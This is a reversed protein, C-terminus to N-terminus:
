AATYFATNHAAQQNQSSVKDRTM